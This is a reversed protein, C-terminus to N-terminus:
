GPMPPIPSLMISRRGRRIPLSNPTSCCFSPPRFARGKPWLGPRMPLASLHEHFVFDAALEVGITRGHEFNYAGILNTSGLAINDLQNWSYRGWGTVSLKAKEM